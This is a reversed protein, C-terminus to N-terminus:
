DLIWIVESLNLELFTKMTCPPAAYDPFFTIEFKNVHRESFVRLTVMEEGCDYRVVGEVCRQGPYEGRLRIAELAQLYYRERARAFESGIIWGPM